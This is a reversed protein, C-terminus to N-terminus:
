QRMEVITSQRARPLLVSSRPRQLSRRSRENGYKVIPKHGVMRRDAGARVRASADALHSEAFLLVREAAADIDGPDSSLLGSVVGLLLM